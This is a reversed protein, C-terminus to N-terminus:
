WNEEEYPDIEKMKEKKIQKLENKLMNIKKELYSKERIIDSLTKNLNEINKELEIIKSNNGKINEIRKKIVNRDIKFIDGWLKVRVTKNKIKMLATKHIKDIEIVNGVGYLFHYLVDGKEIMDEFSHISMLPDETYRGEGAHESEYIKFNRIM